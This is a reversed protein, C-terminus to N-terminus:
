FPRRPAAPTQAPIYLQVGMRSGRSFLLPTSLPYPSGLLKPSGDNAAADEGSTGELSSSRALGGRSASKLHPYHAWGGQVPRQWFLSPAAHGSIQAAGRTNASASAPVLWADAVEGSTLLKPTFPPSTTNQLFLRQLLFEGQSVGIATASARRVRHRGRGCVACAVYTQM